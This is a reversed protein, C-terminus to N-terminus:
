MPWHMAQDGQISQMQNLQADHYMMHIASLSAMGLPTEKNGQIDIELHMNEVPLADWADRVAQASEDFMKVITEKNQAEAPAKMFEGEPGTWPGPDEGRLRMAIRNNVVAVEYTYDYANRAAQGPRAALTEPSMAELDGKYFSHAMALNKAVSAKWEASM